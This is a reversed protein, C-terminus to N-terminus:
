DVPPEGGDPELVPGPPIEEGVIGTVVVGIVVAGTDVVGTVVVGIVVAGTDVVGTV